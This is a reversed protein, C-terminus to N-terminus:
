RKRSVSEMFRPVATSPSSGAQPSNREWEGVQCIINGSNTDRDHTAGCKSRKYQNRKNAHEASVCQVTDIGIKSFEDGSGALLANMDFASMWKRTGTYNNWAKYSTANCFNWVQNVERAAQELFSYAHKKVKCSRTLTSRELKTQGYVFPMHWPLLKGQCLLRDAPFLGDSM